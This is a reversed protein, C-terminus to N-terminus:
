ELIQIGIQNGQILQLLKATVNQDYLDISGYRTSNKPHNQDPRFNYLMSVKLRYWGKKNQNHLNKELRKVLSDSTNNYLSVSVYNNSGDIIVLDSDKHIDYNLIYSVRYSGNEKRLLDFLLGVERLFSPYCNTIRCKLTNCYLTEKKPLATGREGCTPEFQPLFSFTTGDTTCFCDLYAQFFEEPEPVRKFAFILFYFLRSFTPIEAKELFCERSWYKRKIRGTERQWNGYRDETKLKETFSHFDMHLERKSMADIAPNKLLIVPKGNENQICIDMYYFCKRVFAISRKDLKM